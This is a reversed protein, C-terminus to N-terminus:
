FRGLTQGPPLRRRHTARPWFHGKNAANPPPTLHQRQLSLSLRVRYKASYASCLCVRLNRCTRSWFIPNHSWTFCITLLRYRAWSYVEQSQQSNRWALSTQGPYFFVFVLATLALSQVTTVQPAHSFAIWPREDSTVLSCSLSERARLDLPKQTSLAKRGFHAKCIVKPTLRM